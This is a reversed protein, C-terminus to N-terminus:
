NHKNVWHTIMQAFKKYDDQYVFHGCNEFIELESNPIKKNLLTANEKFLIADHEGWFIKTPITIKPLFADLVPVSDKYTKFWKMANAVKGKHANIYESIEYKNPVYQINCLNRSAEILTGNGAVVFMFRWFSSQTMKKMLSPDHSPWVGPGDGIMISKITNSHNNLYSLASAMGVDPAVLHSDQIDFKQLFSNLFNGQFEFNMYEPKTDSNGFGPMDYAYLNFDDKLLNWIPSYALITHPFASLLVVTPKTDNIISQAIRINIGDISIDKFPMPFPTEFTPNNKNYGNKARLKKLDSMEPTVLNVFAANLKDYLNIKTLKGQKSM